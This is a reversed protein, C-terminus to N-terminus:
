EPTSALKACGALRRRRQEIADRMTVSTPVFEKLVARVDANDPERSGDNFATRMAKVWAQEIQRGSFGNSWEAFGAVNFEDPVRKRKAIHIKWIAEREKRNPLEVNWLDCRDILPDPLQDINNCTFVWFIGESNFQMDQLITKVVRGTTGGDTEGGRGGVLGELEDIWFVVPAIARATAFATRWNRESAGVLGEFLRGAELRLQPLKFISGCATAGLSKGTGPNGCLLLATPSPLGYARAEKTFSNRKSHLDAKLLDLGGIDDLTVRNEVVELIGNKRITDAKIRSVVDPDIKDKEVLSFSVADLFENTTLGSGADLIAESSGNLEVGKCKCATQAVVLLEERTPLTFEVVTMEKELEPPLNLQCGLIILHRNTMRGAQIADKMLRLLAPQVTEKKLFVHFDRLLVVSKNGVISGKFQGPEGTVPEAMIFAKLVNMPDTLKIERGDESSLTAVAGKDNVLGRTVTWNWLKYDLETCVEGISAAARDEESTTCYLASFGARLYTKLKTKM